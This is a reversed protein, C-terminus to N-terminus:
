CPVWIPDPQTATIRVETKTRDFFTNSCEDLIILALDYVSKIQNKRASKLRNRISKHIGSMDSKNYGYRRPFSTIITREDLVWMWLQDVMILQSVKKIDNKCHDCGHEDTKSWHGKWKLQSESNGDKKEKQWWHKPKLVPPPELKHCFELNMNTGRYVVQDRDRVKTTKLTWYYSQDLTRRPHLPPDHYLYEKLMKQDRFISMAEYLRAADILYQGLPSEERNKLVLRGSPGIEIKDRAPNVSKHALRSLDTFTRPVVTKKADGESHQNGIDAFHEHPTEDLHEIKKLGSELGDREMKREKRMQFRLNENKQRQKESEADIMKAVTNRMRDTEWHMYPM